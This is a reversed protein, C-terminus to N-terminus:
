YFWRPTKGNRTKTMFADSTFPRQLKRLVRGILNPFHITIPKRLGRLAGSHIEAFAYVQGLTKTTDIAYNRISHIKITIPKPWGGPVREPRGTTNMVFVDKQLRITQGKEPIEPKGACINSVRPTEGTILSIALGKLDHVEAWHELSVLERTTFSGDKHITFTNINSPLKQYIEDGYEDFVNNKEIWYVGLHEINAGQPDFVVLPCSLKIQPIRPKEKKWEQELEPREAVPIEAVDYGLIVDSSMMRKACGNPLACSVIGSKAALQLSINFLADDTNAKFSLSRDMKSDRPEVTIMQSPLKKEFMTVKPESYFEKGAKKGPIFVIASDFEGEQIEKSIVTKYDEINTSPVSKQSIDTKAKFTNEFGRYRGNPIGKELNNCFDEAEIKYDEPILAVIRIDKPNDYPWLEPDIMLDTLTGKNIDKPKKWGARVENGEKDRFALEPRKFTILTPCLSGMGTQSGENFDIELAREMIRMPDTEFSIRTNDRLKLIGLEKLFAIISELRRITRRRFLDQIIAYMEHNRSAVIDYTLTPKMLCSAYTWETRIGHPVAKLLFSDKALKRVLFPYLDRVYDRYTRGYFPHMDLPKDINYDELIQTLYATGGGEFSLNLGLSRIEHENWKDTIMDWVTMKSTIKTSAAADLYLSNGYSTLDYSFAPHLAIIESLNLAEPCNKLKALTQLRQIIEQAFDVREDFVTREMSRYGKSVFARQILAHVIKQIPGFAYPDSISLREDKKILKLTFETRQDDLGLAHGEIVPEDEAVIIIYLGDKTRIWEADRITEATRLSRCIVAMRGEPEAYNSLIGEGLHAVRYYSVNIGERLDELM